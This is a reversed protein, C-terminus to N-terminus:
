GKDSYFDDAIRLFNHRLPLNGRKLGLKILIVNVWCHSLVHKGTLNLHIGDRALHPLGFCLNDFLKLHETRISLKVLFENTKNICDNVHNFRDANMSVPCISDFLFQTNKFRAVFNKVHDHLTRADVKNKRIDNVGASILVVDARAIADSHQSLDRLFFLDRRFAM